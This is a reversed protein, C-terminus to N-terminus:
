PGRWAEAWEGASLREKFHQRLFEYDRDWCSIAMAFRESDQRERNKILMRLHKATRSLREKSDPEGWPARYGAPLNSPLQARRIFDELFERRDAEPLGQAGVTYGLLKM